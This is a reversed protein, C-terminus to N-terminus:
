STLCAGSTGFSSLLASASYAAQAFRPMRAAFRPLRSSQGVAADVMHQAYAAGRLLRGDSQYRAGARVIRARIDAGVGVRLGWGAVIAIGAAEASAVVLAQIWAQDALDVRIPDVPLDSRPLANAVANIGVSDIEAVVLPTVWSEDALRRVVAEGIGRAAGVVVATGRREGATTGDTGDPSSSGGSM